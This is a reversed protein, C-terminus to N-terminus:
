FQPNTCIGFNAGTLIIQSRHLLDGPRDNHVECAMDPQSNPSSVTRTTSYLLPPGITGDRRVINVQVAVQGPKKGYGSSGVSGVMLASYLALKCVCAYACMRCLIALLTLDRYLGCYMSYQILVIFEVNCIVYENM